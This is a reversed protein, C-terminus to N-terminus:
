IKDLGFDLALGHGFDLALGSVSNVAHAITPIQKRFDAFHKTHFSNSLKQTPMPKRSLHRDKLVRPFGEFYFLLFVESITSFRAGEQFQPCYIILILQLHKEKQSFMQNIIQVM